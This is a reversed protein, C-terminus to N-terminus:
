DRNFPQEADARKVIAFVNEPLVEPVVAVDPRHVVEDDIFRAVGADPMAYDHFAITGGPAVLPFWADFDAKVGDYSHDADILLFALPEGPYTAAVETTLGVLPSAFTRSDTREMMREFAALTSGGYRDISAYQTGHERTGEFTDVAYVHGNGRSRCAAALYCTTLGKWAGLEVIDGAPNANCALKFIALRERPTMMGDRSTWHLRRWLRMLEAVADHPLSLCDLPTRFDRLAGLKRVVDLTSRAARHGLRTEAFRYYCQGLTSM